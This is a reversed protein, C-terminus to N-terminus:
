RSSRGKDFVPRRCMEQWQRRAEALAEELEDLEAMMSAPLSHAPLRSQLDSLQRELRAVNAALETLASPQSTLKM